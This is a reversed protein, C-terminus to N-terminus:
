FYLFSLPLNSIIHNPTDAIKNITPTRASNYTIGELLFSQDIEKAIIVLPTEPVTRAVQRKKISM